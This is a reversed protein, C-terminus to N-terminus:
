KVFNKCFNYIFYIYICLLFSIFDNNSNIYCINIVGRYEFFLFYWYEENEQFLFFRVRVVWKGFNDCFRIDFM